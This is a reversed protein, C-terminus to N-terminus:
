GSQADENSTKAGSFNLRLTRRDSLGISKRAMEDFRPLKSFAVPTKETDHCSEEDRGRHGGNTTETKSSKHGLPVVSSQSVPHVIILYTFQQRSYNNRSHHSIQDTFSGKTAKYLRANFPTFRILRPIKAEKRVRGFLLNTQKQM